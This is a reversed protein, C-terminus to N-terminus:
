SVTTRFSRRTKSQISKKIIEKRLNSNIKLFHLMKSRNREIYIMMLWKRSKSIQNKQPLKYKIKSIMLKVLNNTIKILIKLIIRWRIIIKRHTIIKRIHKHSQSNKKIMKKIEKKLKIRKIRNRIKNSKNNHIIKIKKIKLKKIQHNQNLVNIKNSKQHFLNM